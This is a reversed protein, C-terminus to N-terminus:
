LLVTSKVGCPCLHTTYLVFEVFTELPFTILLEVRDVFITYAFAHSFAVPFWLAAAQVTYLLATICRTFKSMKQKNNMHNAYDDALKAPVLPIPFDHYGQVWAKEGLNQGATKSSVDPSKSRCVILVSVVFELIFFTILQPQMIVDPEFITVTILFVGISFLVTGWYLGYVLNKQM